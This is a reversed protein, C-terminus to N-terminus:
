LVSVIEGKFGKTKGDEDVSGEECGNKIQDGVQADGHAVADAHNVDVVGPEFLNAIEQALTAFTVKPEPSDEDVTISRVELTLGKTEPVFLFIIVLGMCLM